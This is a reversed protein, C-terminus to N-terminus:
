AYKKTREIAQKLRLLTNKTEVLNAQGGDSFVAGGRPAFEIEVCTAETGQPIFRYWTKMFNGLVVVERGEAVTELTSSGGLKWVLRAGAVWGPDVQELGGGYWGEWTNCDTFYKWVVDPQRNITVNTKPM